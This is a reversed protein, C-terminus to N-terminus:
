MQIEEFHITAVVSLIVLLCASGSKFNPFDCTTLVSRGDAVVGEQVTSREIPPHLLQWFPESAEDPIINDANTVFM